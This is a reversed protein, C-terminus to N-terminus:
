SLRLDALEIALCDPCNCPQPLSWPNAQLRRILEIDDTVTSREALSGGIPYLSGSAAQPDSLAGSAVQEGALQAVLCDSKIEPAAEAGSAQSQVVALEGEMGNASELAWIGAVVPPLEPGVFEVEPSGTPLEATTTEAVYPLCAEGEGSGNAGTRLLSSSRNTEGEGAGSGNIANVVLLADIATLFADNSVDIYPSAPIGSGTLAAATNSNLLNVILLVDIATIKGDDNVDEAIHTNHWATNQFNIGYDVHEITEMSQLDLTQVAGAATSVHSTVGALVAQVHYVGAPLNAFSYRGTSDTLTQTTPGYRLNDIKVGTEMHGYVLIFAIDATDRSITLTQSESGPIPYSTIRALLDGNADYAELRGYSTEGAGIVDVAVRSTTSAFGVKLQRRVNWTDNFGQTSLSYPRFVRAGTTADGDNFAGVSGNTDAGVARITVNPFASSTLVGPVQSDPEILRELSIPSGAADVLQVTTSGIGSEVADLLGNSNADNFVFGNIGIRSTADPVAGIQGTFVNSAIGTEDDIARIQITGSQVGALPISLELMAEYVDPSAVTQWDGSGIKAEIRSIRNLTIDNGLGASNLNPLTQVKASGTFRYNGSNVDVRGVGDLSLPVDMVDFIGDGDSDKWGLMALTSAPSVVQTYANSLSNGTAMISPAQQFNSDPNGDIANTNQTNYYGRTAFYSASGAYEDRAWFMHGTEHAFTSAPRTSPVVMFMGGAFAFARSFSGGAAFTGEVDVQSDVIFITFAWDANLKERQAHNFARMNLELSSYDDYGTRMLFEQSWLSYDDSRRNIPEYATPSPTDIYTPDIIFDLSHVATQTALLDKWWAFAENLNATVDAVHAPNWNETSADILGNSELLVPTVAVRGLMFEATDNPVAGYPLGARVWRPELREMKPTRRSSHFKM